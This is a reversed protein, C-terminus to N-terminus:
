QIVVAIPFDGVAANSPKPLPPTQTGKTLEKVRESIHFALLDITVRGGEARAGNLGEVLAETFAGNEWKPDEQSYQNGTSSAFVVAGNEASALENVIRQIDPPGRRAGMIDGSRCTDAFLLVKGAISKVTNKIESYPVATSKLKGTDAGVPLFYYFDNADDVGHGALFIMAVDNATTQRQITDLGDLIADKSAKEDLLETSDIKRYLRGEQRAIAHVFDHADKAAYALKLREDRYKAVGIALVYLKPRLDVASRGAWRVRVKAAESWAHRNKAIIGVESDSEPLPVRIEREFEPESLDLHYETARPRGDVLAKIETVAAGPPSRVQFRVTIEDEKAESGEEPSLIRVVPPLIDAVEAQPKRQGSEREALRIAQDTDLTELLKAIVEPRYYVERFRSAPYFDAAQEPGKNLHWGILDEAGPSADYYGGPTWLVWRRRDNHPFLALLEKGDALRYWRITGDGLAAVATRGDGAINVAWAVGPVPIDWKQKGKRDFLRLRWDTGLLFTQQDPAIALSRAKEYPELKLPQGNLKPEYTNKWGTIELGEARTLPPSLGGGLPGTELLRQNVSFRAPSRGWLEFGFQVTAGDQSLRFGEGAARFDAIAATRFLRKQDSPDIIGFAPDATGFAVGGSKLSVIQMVANSAAPLESREGRGADKWRLIPNSGEKDYTGGAYLFRGDSSWAVSCINGNDIGRTDPSYVPELDRGSLVDIRTSDTFGVALRGGDPSFSVSYPKKGGPSPKKEIRKLDSGYLRVFGDLSVTALRGDTAFDLGTCPTAM